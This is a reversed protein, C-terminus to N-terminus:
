LSRSKAWQLLEKRPWVLMYSKPKYKGDKYLQNRTKSKALANGTLDDGLYFGKAGNDLPTKQLYMLKPSISELQPDYFWSAGFIGKINENIKLMEAIRVYCDNWGKETFESLEPTHTHIQYYGNRGSGSVILQLFKIAQSLNKNFGQKLGFGSYTEVIQAGAPFMQLRALALDKWFVDENYKGWGQPEDQCINFFRQITKNFQDQISIPFRASFIEDWNKLLCELIAIKRCEEMSENSTDKQITDFIHALAEIRYPEITNSHNGAIHSLTNSVGYNSYIDTVHSKLAHLVNDFDTKIM